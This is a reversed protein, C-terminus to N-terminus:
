PGSIKTGYAPAAPVNAPWSTSKFQPPNPTTTQLKSYDLPALQMSSSTVPPAVNLTQPPVRTASSPSILPPPYAVTAPPAIATAPPAIVQSSPYYSAPASYTGAIPPYGETAGFRKLRTTEPEERPNIFGLPRGGVIPPAINPDPFPDYDKAQALKSSATGPECIRPLGFQPGCGVLLLGFLPLLIRGCGSRM